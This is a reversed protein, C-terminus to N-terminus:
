FKRLCDGGMAGALSAMVCGAWGNKSEVSMSTATRKRMLVVLGVVVTSPTLVGSFAKVGLFVM